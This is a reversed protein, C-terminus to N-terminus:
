KAAERVRLICHPLVDLFKSVEDDTTDKGVTVRLSGLAWEDSFGLSTLVRSPKPDGTKCASGSSCAFGESDLVQILLNGDVGEFVFSAHNPLRGNGPAGTLQSAPITELVGTIIRDRLQVVREWREAEEENILQCAKAMGVILPTNQTAARLGFEQSGGTMWPLLDTGARVYLAGVGKPGYFKHAGISLMDVGTSEVDITSHAASQVADTHVPIRLTKCAEVVQKIDNITGVENNAGMVSVVATKETILDKIRKYEVEGYGNVPLYEVDFGFYSSLHEATIQIAPHEIPTILIQSCGFKERRAFAAGRLALNDSESGCSTFIIESANAGLHDAISIRANELAAEAKQGFGHLSSPNGFSEHFFPTMVNIVRDDVPTTAAYDLYIKNM